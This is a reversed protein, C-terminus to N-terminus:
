IEGMKEDRDCELSVDERECLHVRGADGFGDEFVGKSLIWGGGEM